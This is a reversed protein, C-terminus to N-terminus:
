CGRGAAELGWGRRGGGGQRGSGGMGQAMGGGWGGGGGERGWAKVPRGMGADEWGPWSGLTSARAGPNFSSLLVSFSYRSM